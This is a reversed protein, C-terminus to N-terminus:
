LLCLETALAAPMLRAFFCFLDVKVVLELGGGVVGEVTRLCMMGMGHLFIFLFGFFLRVPLGVPLSLQVVLMHLLWMLFLLFLEVLGLAPDLLLLGFCLCLVLVLLSVLLDSGGGRRNRLILHCLSLLM